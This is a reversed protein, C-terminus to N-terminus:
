RCLMDQSNILKLRIFQGYKRFDFFDVIKDGITRRIILEGGMGVIVHLNAITVGIGQEWEPLMHQAAWYEIDHEKCRWDIWNVPLVAMKGLQGEKIYEGGGIKEGCWNLQWGEGILDLISGILHLGYPDVWNGPNNGVYNYLNIGGGIGIPDTQLFRGVGADYSRARYYYLGSDEDWERGTFRFPNVISGTQNRMKGFAEYGYSAASVGNANTLNVISGLGDAHYYSEAGDRTMSIPNDIGPGFTYRAKLNNYQDFECLIDFADYLYTSTGASDNKAIRQGSPSYGFTNIRNDPFLIKVLRNEYDYQYTTADTGETKSVM